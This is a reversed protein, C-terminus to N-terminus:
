LTKHDHLHLALTTYAMSGAGICVSERCILFPCYLEVFETTGCSLMSKYQLSKNIQLWGVGQRCLGAM